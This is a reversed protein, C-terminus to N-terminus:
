IHLSTPDPHPQDLHPPEYHAVEDLSCEKGETKKLECYSISKVFCIKLIKRVYTKDNAMKASQM